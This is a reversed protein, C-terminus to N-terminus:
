KKRESYGSGVPCAIGPCLQPRCQNACLTACFGPNLQLPQGLPDIITIHTGSCACAQLQDCFSETDPLDLRLMVTGPSKSGYKQGDGLQGINCAAAVSLVASAFIAPRWASATM